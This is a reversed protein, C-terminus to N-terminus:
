IGMNREGSCTLTGAELGTAPDSTLPFVHLASEFAYFGNKAQLIEFLEPGLAYVELFKPMFKVAPALPESGISVLKEVSTM